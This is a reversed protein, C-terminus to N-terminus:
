EAEVSRIVRVFMNYESQESTEIDVRWEENDSLGPANYFKDYKLLKNSLKYIM